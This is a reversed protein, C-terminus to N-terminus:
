TTTGMFIVSYFTYIVVIIILGFWSLIHPLSHSRPFKKNKWERPLLSEEDYIGNDFFGFIRECKRIMNRNWIFKCNVFWIHWAGYSAVLFTFVCLLTQVYPKHSPQVPALRTVAVIGGMFGITWILIKWEMDRYRRTEAFLQRHLAILMNIRQNEEIEM